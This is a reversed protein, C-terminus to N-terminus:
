QLITIALVNRMRSNNIGTIVACDLTAGTKEHMGCIGDAWHVLRALLASSSGRATGSSHSMKLTASPM